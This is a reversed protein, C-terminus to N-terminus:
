TSESCPLTTVLGKLWTAVTSSDHGLSRFKKYGGFPPINGEIRTSHPYQGRLNTARSPCCLSYTVFYNDFTTGRDHLLAKTKPMYAHLAMDEDDSLIFIINPRRASGDTRNITAM